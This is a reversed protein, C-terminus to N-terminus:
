RMSGLSVEGRDHLYISIAYRMASPLEAHNPVLEALSWELSWFPSDPPDSPLSTEPSDTLQQNKLLHDRTRTGDAGGTLDLM